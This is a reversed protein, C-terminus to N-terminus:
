SEVRTAMNGAFHVAFTTIIVWIKACIHIKDNCIVAKGLTRKNVSPLLSVGNLSGDVVATAAVHGM